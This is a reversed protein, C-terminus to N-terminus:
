KEIIREGVVRWQKEGLLSGNNKKYYQKSSFDKEYEEKFYRVDLLYLCVKQRDNGFCYSQYAGNRKRAPHNPPLDLFDFLLDRSQQKKRFGSGGDNKGFDHDDWVGFINTHSSLKKYSPLSKQISYKLALDDMSRGKLM